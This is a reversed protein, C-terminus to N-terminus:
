EDIIERSPLRNRPFVGTQVAEGRNEVDDIKDKILTDNDGFISVGAFEIRSKRDMEPDFGSSLCFQSGGALKGTYKAHRDVHLIIGFGAALACRLAPVALKRFQGQM